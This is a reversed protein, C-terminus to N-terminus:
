ASEHAAAVSMPMAVAGAGHEHREYAEFTWEARRRYWVEATHEAARSAATKIWEILKPRQHDLSLLMEALGNVDGRGVVAGHGCQGVVQRTFSLDFALLGCGGAMADFLSRPTEEAMSTFLMLHYAAIERLLEPGYPRKGLFRVREALGRSKALQKLEDEAPGEGIVDLMVNAGRKGAEAVAQITHDVGKYDVLRGLSLCRIAEGAGISRCKEELQRAGIIDTAHFSTDFFDRANRAFRGYREHLARGKLLSLDAKAVAKKAVRVYLKGYVADKLKRMMGAGSGLDAMRQVADGDLVFVSTVNARQAANFGMIAYPQWLDNIGCHIVQSSRALRDCAARISPYSRWFQRARWGKVGLQEFQIEDRGAHLIAPTQQGILGDEMPLAPAAVTIKGFRGGLSDRLLLLSKAWDSAVECRQEDRRRFPVGITLTYM